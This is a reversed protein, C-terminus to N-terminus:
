KSLLSPSLSFSLSGLSQRCTGDGRQQHSACDQKYLEHAVGFEQELRQADRQSEQRERIHCHGDSPRDQGHHDQQHGFQFPVGRDRGRDFRASQVHAKHLHAHLVQGDSEHEIM